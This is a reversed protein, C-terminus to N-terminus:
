VPRFMPLSIGSDGQDQWEVRVRAGIKIDKTPDEVGVINTMMRFGEDLDVFAIAYPGLEVFAPHRNQRVVSYTYIVGEGKSERWELNPGGCTTCHGRPYFVIGKCDQCVQYTLKHDKTAEWFPQTDVEPFNPLPRTAM